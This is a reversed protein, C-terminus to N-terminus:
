PGLVPELGGIRGRVVGVRVWASGASVRVRWGMRALDGPALEVLESVRWSSYWSVPGLHVPKLQGLREGPSAAERCVLCPHWGASESESRRVAAQRVAIPQSAQIWPARDLLRGYKGSEVPWSAHLRRKSESGLVRGSSVEIPRRQMVPPGTASGRRAAGKRVQRERLVLNAALGVRIPNM